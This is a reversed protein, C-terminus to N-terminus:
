GLTTACGNQTSPLQSGATLQKCAVWAEPIKGGSSLAPLGELLINKSANIDRDESHGCVVCNYWRDALTIRELPLSGCASCRQTTNNPNGKVLRGGASEAKYTLQQIFQGWNQELISRNLGRKHAGGHATMNKIQLDEVAVWKGHNRIIDTTIAHLENRTRVRQRHHAKKLQMVKKKRSNSGKKTRAVQRQLQKIPQNDVLHKPIMTHNVGDTIIARQKVGMDIGIPKDLGNIRPEVDCILQVYVGNPYKVVRVLTVQAKTCRDDLRWRLRGIGKINVSGYKDKFSPKIGAAEFSRLRGYGRFRPFGGQKFFRQYAKDLRFLASRQSGVHFQAFDPDDARIDTLSKCQDYATITKGTKEYCGIREQLAGNYLQRQQELFYNLNSHSQRSLKVRYTYTRM